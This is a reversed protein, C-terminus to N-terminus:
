AAASRQSSSCSGAAFCWPGLPRLSDLISTERPRFTGESIRCFITAAAASLIMKKEKKLYSNSAAALQGSLSVNYIFPIFIRGFLALCEKQFGVSVVMKGVKEVKKAWSAALWAVFVRSGSLSVGHCHLVPFTLFLRFLALRGKQFGLSVVIKGIKEVKKAWSAALCSVM